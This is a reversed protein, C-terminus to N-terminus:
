VKDFPEVILFAFVPCFFWEIVKRYATQLLESLKVLSVWVHQPVVLEDLALGTGGFVQCYHASPTVSKLVL